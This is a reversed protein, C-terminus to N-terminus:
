LLLLIYLYLVQVNMYMDFAAETCYMGSESANADYPSQMNKTCPKSM